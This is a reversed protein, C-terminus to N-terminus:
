NATSWYRNTVYDMEGGGLNTMVLGITMDETFVELASRYFM